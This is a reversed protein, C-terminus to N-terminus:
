LLPLNRPSNKRWPGRHALSAVPQNKRAVGEQKRPAEEEERKKMEERNLEKKGETLEILAQWGAPVRDIM